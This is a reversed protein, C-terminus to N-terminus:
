NVGFSNKYNSVPSFSSVRLNKLTKRKDNEVIKLLNSFSDKETCATDRDLRNSNSSTKQHKNNFKRIICKDISKEYSSEPEFISSLAPCENVNNDNNTQNLITTNGSTSSSPIEIYRMFENQESNEENNLIRFKSVKQPKFDIEIEPRITNHLNNDEL